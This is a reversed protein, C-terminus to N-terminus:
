LSALWQRGAHRNDLALRHGLHLRLLRVAHRNDVALRLGLRRQSRPRLAIEERLSSALAQDLWAATLLWNNAAAAITFALLYLAAHLMHLIGVVSLGEGGVSPPNVFM